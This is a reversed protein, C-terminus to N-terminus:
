KKNNKMFIELAAAMKTRLVQEICFDKIDDNLSDDWRSGLVSMPVKHLDGYMIFNQLDPLTKIDKLHM